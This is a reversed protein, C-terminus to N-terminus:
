HGYFRLPQLAKALDIEAALEYFRQLGAAESPGLGYKLNDGLYELSRRELDAHGGAVDRAIDALHALGQDRARAAALGLGTWRM